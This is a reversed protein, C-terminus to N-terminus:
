SLVAIRSCVIQLSKKAFSINGTHCLGLYGAGVILSFYLTARFMLGSDLIVM